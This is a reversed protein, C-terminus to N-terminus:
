QWNRVLRVKYKSSRYYAYDSGSSGFAIAWAYDTESAVRSSLPSSSWWFSWSYLTNPFLTLNIAPKYCQREIISRLENRNPVRWDTKGVFGGAANVAQAKQLAEQWTYGSASGVCTAGNWNQGESCKKWMLSTKSDTVTGNRNDIFQNTPTTAAINLPKCLQAARAMVPLLTLLVLTQIFKSM